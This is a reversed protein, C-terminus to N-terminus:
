GSAGRTVLWAVCRSRSRTMVPFSSHARKIQRPHTRMPRLPWAKLNPPRPLALPSKVWGRPRQDVLMRIARLAGVFSLRSPELSLAQATLNRVHCVANYILALMLMEHTVGEVSECKLRDMGLTRKLHRLNTEVRWRLQYLEALDAASYKEADLLTTLLTLERTRFGRAVIRLRVARVVLKGPIRAFAEPTLHEPRNHPKVIEVIQDEPSIRKVMIPESRRHRSYTYRRRAGSRAPFPMTRSTPMRFLGHCGRQLLQALHVYGCLGRDGVLVDGPRLAPHLDQAHKLDRTCAPAVHLELLLGDDARFAGLVSPCPLGCGEGLGGAVRYRRRLAAADPVSVGTGDAVVVRLGRWRGGDGGVDDARDVFDHLVARTVGVPLRARAQCFASESFRDGMLSVVHAISTNGHLMQVAMAELTALPGLTRDRWGHGCDRCARDVVDADFLMAPDDKVDRLRSSISVM